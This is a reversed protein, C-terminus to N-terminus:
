EGNTHLVPSNRIESNKVGDIYQNIILDMTDWRWFLIPQLIKWVYQYGWHKSLIDALNDNGALSKFIMVGAAIVERVRRFSLAIYRRHLKTHPISTSNAVLKNDRFMFCKQRLPAGLYRLTNQIDM